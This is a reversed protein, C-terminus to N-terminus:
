IKYHFPHFTAFSIMKFNIMFLSKNILVLDKFFIDVKILCFFSFIIKKKCFFTYLYFM